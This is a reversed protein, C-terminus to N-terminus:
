SHIRYPVLNYNLVKIKSIQHFLEINTKFLNILHNPFCELKFKPVSQSVKDSLCIFINRKLIKMGSNFLLIVPSLDSM